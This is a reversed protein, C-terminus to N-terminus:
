SPLWLVFSFLFVPHTLILYVHKNLWLVVEMAEIKFIRSPNSLDSKLNSQSVM